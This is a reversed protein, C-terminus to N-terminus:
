RAVTRLLRMSVFFVLASVVIAVPVSGVIWDVFFRALLADWKPSFDHTDLMKGHTILHGVWVSASIVVVAVPPVSINTGLVVAVPHLHWRRAVYLGMFAQVGFFPMVGLFAGVALAFATKVRGARNDRVQRWLRVPSFWNVLRSFWGGTPAPAEVVAETVIPAHHARGSWPLLALWLLRLHMALVRASDRIPKFHSVRKEAPFYRCNVPVEVLPVQEWAAHVIVESEFAFRGATCHVFVFMALPYVRYGCQSDAVDVGAELFILLNSVRRGFRSRPPYDPSEIDRTGIILAHPNERAADLLRPADEPDLQGDTDLTLAHTFGLSQAHAFGTHLAASKGRNRTHTLAVRLSGAHHDPSQPADTKGRAWADLVSATDDTSGDNVVLVPLGLRDVRQLIDALTRANNFTPAVVCPAFRIPVPEPTHAPTTM